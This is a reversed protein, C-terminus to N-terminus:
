FIAVLNDWYVSFFDTVFIMIWDNGYDSVTNRFVLDLEDDNCFRVVCGVLFIRLVSYYVYYVDMIDVFNEKEAGRGEEYTM